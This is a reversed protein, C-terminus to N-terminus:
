SGPALRKVAKSFEDINNFADTPLYILENDAKGYPFLVYDKGVTYKGLASLPILYERYIFRTENNKTTSGEDETTYGEDESLSDADPDNLRLVIKLGEKSIEVRHDMVNLYNIGRIGYNYYLIALLSPYILFLLILAFIFIRYDLAFALVAAVFLLFVGTIIWAMGYREVLIWAFRGRGAKFWGSCIRDGDSQFFEAETM